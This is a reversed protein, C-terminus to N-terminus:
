APQGVLISPAVIGAEGCPLSGPSRQAERQALRDAHDARDRRPVRRQRHRISFIAGASAVPQVSTSFGASSVGSVAIRRTSSQWSAPTGSPTDVEDIAVPRLGAGREGRMGPTSLIAKVPEVATPLCITWAAAPLRFFTVSSSPPLDGTTTKSSASRSCTIGPATRAQKKRCPWFQMAPVRRNTCSFTCSLTTSPMAAIALPM